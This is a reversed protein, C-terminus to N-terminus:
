TVEILLFDSKKKRAASYFFTKQEASHNEAFDTASLM